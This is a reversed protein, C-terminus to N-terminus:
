LLREIKNKHQNLKLESNRINLYQKSDLFVFNRSKYNYDKKDLSHEKFPKTWM